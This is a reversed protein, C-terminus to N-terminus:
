KAVKRRRNVVKQGLAADVVMAARVAIESTWRGAKWSEYDARRVLYHKCTVKLLSPFEGRLSMKRLKREAISLEGAVVRLPM